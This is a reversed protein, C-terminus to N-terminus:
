KLTEVLFANLHLLSLSQCEILPDHEAEDACAVVAGEDDAHCVGEVGLVLEAEDEVEHITSIKMIM